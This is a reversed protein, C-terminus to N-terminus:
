ADLGPILVSKVFGAPRTELLQLAADAGALGFRHTILPALRIRRQAVTDALLALAATIRGHDPTWGGLVSVGKHWVNRHTSDMSFHLGAASHYGIIALRGHPAVMAGALDLGAQVGTAELVVDFRAEPGPSRDTLPAPLEDPAFVADAGLDTALGRLDPRLDVGVLASPAALRALQVLGLGMFGLGVVAVREGPRVAARGLVEVLRALPESIMTEPAIGPPVAVVSDDRLIAHSAYGRNGLGTVLDGSRWRSGAAVEVVRGVIEHGLVLPDTSRAADAWPARDGTCVGSALVEVLVEGTSPVPMPLEFLESRRPAVVRSVLM